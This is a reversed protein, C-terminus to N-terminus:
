ARGGESWLELAFASRNAAPVRVSRDDHPKPAIQVSIGLRAKVHDRCAQWSDGSHSFCIFGEPAQPDFRVALSRDKASHGPGPCLVENGAVDGALANAWARLTSKM